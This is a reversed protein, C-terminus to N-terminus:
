GTAPISATESEFPGPLQPHAVNHVARGDGAFTPALALGVEDGKEIVGGSHYGM